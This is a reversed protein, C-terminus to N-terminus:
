VSSRTPAPSFRPRCPSASRRPPISTSSGARVDDTAPGAPEGAYGRSSRESTFAVLRYTATFSTGHRILGGAADFERLAYIAPVAHHSTLAVLQDRRSIFFPDAQVVLAAAHLRVLFAFATDIEDENAAKLINLQVGKARAAEEVGRITRETNANNPNVFLAIVGAQPVLESLLELGLNKLWGLVDM